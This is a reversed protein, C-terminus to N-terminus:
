AYGASKTFWEKWDRLVDGYDIPGKSHSREIFQRFATNSRIVFGAELLSPEDERMAFDVIADRMRSRVEVNSQANETSMGWSRAIRLIRDSEIDKSVLRDKMENFLMLDTFGGEEEKDVEAIQVVRRKENQTGSPKTLGCVIVVDTAAFSKANIDMDHVVREFVAKASDAHFTGM